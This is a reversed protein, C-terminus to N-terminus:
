SRVDVLAREPKAARTVLVAEYAAVPALDVQVVVPNGVQDAVEVGGLRVELGAIGVTDHGALRGVALEFALPVQLHHRAPPVVVVVKVAAVVAAPM